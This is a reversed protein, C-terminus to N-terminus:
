SKKIEAKVKKYVNIDIYEQTYLSDLMASLLRKEIEKETSKNKIDVAM